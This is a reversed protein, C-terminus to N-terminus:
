GCTRIGVERVGEAGPWWKEATLNLKKQYIGCITSVTCYKGKESMESLM